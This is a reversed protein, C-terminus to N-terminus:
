GSQGSQGPVVVVPKGGVASRCDPEDPNEPEHPIDEVIRRKPDCEAVSTETIPLVSGALLVM